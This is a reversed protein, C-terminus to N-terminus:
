GGQVVIKKNVIRWCLFTILSFIFIWIIQELLYKVVSNVGLVMLFHQLINVRYTLGSYISAPINYMAQFPLNILIKQISEPYFTLPVTLGALLNILSSKLISVGFVQTTWFSVLGVLFEFMYVLIFSLLVSTITIVLTSIDKVIDIKFIVKATFILPIISFVFNFFVVGVRNFFLYVFFNIPRILDISINGSSVKAGIEMETNRSIIQNIITIVCVYTITKNLAIFNFNNTSSYVATWMYYVIAIFIISSLISLFNNMWYTSSQKFAYYSIYFCKEFKYKLNM